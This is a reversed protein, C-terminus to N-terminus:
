ISILLPTVRLEKRPSVPQKKLIKEDNPMPAFIVVHTEWVLEDILDVWFWTQDDVAFPTTAVRHFDFEVKKDDVTLTMTDNAVSINAQTTALFPCGLILHIEGANSMDLVLFDAQIVFKWVKVVLKEVVGNTGEVIHRGDTSM